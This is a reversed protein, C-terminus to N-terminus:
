QVSIKNAKYTSGGQKGDSYLILSEVTGDTHVVFEIDDDGNNYFFEHPKTAVFPLINGSPYQMLLNGKNRAIEYINGSAFQYKGVYRDLEADTLKIRPKAPPAPVAPALPEGTALHMALDMPRNNTRANELVVVGIGLEFNVVFGSRYGEKGGDHRLIKGAGLLERQTQIAPGFSNANSYLYAEAFNLMDNATSRLSGSAPLTLLEWTDVPQLYLDHGPALRATQNNSLTISTSAMHLPKLIRQTLIEEYTLEVNSALIIGLLSVGMNSYARREGPAYPFSYASLFEYLQNLTYAAYPEPKGHVDFNTPMSPLGSQHLALHRLTMRDGSEPIDVNGLLYASVYDDLGVEKRLVMDSLLLTTFIKTVSGIQFVTDGDLPRKNSAASRGHTIVRRGNADVIGVVVGVGNHQMRDVLLPKIEETSPAQWPRTEQTFAPTVFILGLVVIVLKLTSLMHKFIFLYRTIMWIGISIFM